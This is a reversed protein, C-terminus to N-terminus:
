GEAKRVKASAPQDYKARLQLLGLLVSDRMEALEEISKGSAEEVIGNVITQKSQGAM